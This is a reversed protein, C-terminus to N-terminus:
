HCLLSLSCYSFGPNDQAVFCCANLVVTCPTGLRCTERSTRSVIRILYAVPLSERLEPVEAVTCSCNRQGSM